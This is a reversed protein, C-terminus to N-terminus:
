QQVLLSNDTMNFCAYWSVSSLRYSTRATYLSHCFTRCFQEETYLEGLITDSANITNSSVCALQSIEETSPTSDTKSLPLCNSKHRVLLSQGWLYIYVTNALSSFSNFFETWLATDRSIHQCHRLLQTIVYFPGDLLCLNARFLLFM